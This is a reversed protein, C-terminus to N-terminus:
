LLLCSISRWLVQAVCGPVTVVDDDQTLVFGIGIAIAHEGLTTSVLAALSAPPPLRLAHQQQAGSSSRPQLGACAQRLNAARLFGIDRGAAVAADNNSLLEAHLQKFRCKLVVHEFADVSSCCLVRKM